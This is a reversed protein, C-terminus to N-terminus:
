KIPKRTIRFKGCKLRNKFLTCITHHKRDTQRCTSTITCFNDQQADNVITQRSKTFVFHKNEQKQVKGCSEIRTIMVNTKRTKQCKGTCSTTPETGEKRFPFLKYHNLVVFRRGDWRRKTYGLARNVSMDEKNEVDCWWLVSNILVFSLM